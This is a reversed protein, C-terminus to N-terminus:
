WVIRVEFPQEPVFPFGPCDREETGWQGGVLTNRVIVKKGWEDFRPNFHFAIDKGKNLNVTM